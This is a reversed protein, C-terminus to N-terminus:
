NHVLTNMALSTQQYLALPICSSCSAYVPALTSWPSSALVMAILILTLTRNARKNEQDHHAFNAGPQNRVATPLQCLKQSAGTRRIILYIRAYLVCIIVFPAWFIVIPVFLLFTFSDAVFQPYCRGPLINRSGNLYRWLFIAFFWYMLPIIYTISILKMAHSLTRRKLHQLPHELADWRDYAIIVITLISIHIFTAKVYQHVDCLIDSFPWYGLIWYVSYLAMTFGGVIDSAALALIYYNTYTLLRKDTYIIYFVGINGVVTIFSVLTSVVAVIISAEFPLGRSNSSSSSSSGDTGFFTDPSLTVPTM